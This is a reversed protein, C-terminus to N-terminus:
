VMSLKESSLEACANSSAVVSTPWVRRPRMSSRVACGTARGMLEAMIAKPDTGCALAHAHDRYTCLIKDGPLQLQPIVGAVLAEQGDYRHLYGGMKGERFKRYTSEEFRRILVMLKYAGLLDEKSQEGKSLEKVATKAM